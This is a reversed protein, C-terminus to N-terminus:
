AGDGTHWADDLEGPQPGLLPEGKRKIAEQKQRPRALLKNVATNVAAEHSWGARIRRGVTGLVFGRLEDWEAASRTEDSVTVHLTSRRNRAQETPTAWRCNGPEYGKENDEREISHDESPPEGMDALFASFDTWRECIDIGRGGYSAFSHDRENRCRTMMGVWTRYVKTGKMGHRQNAAISADRVLCGCSKSQGRTIQKGVVVKETGCECVCLWKGSGVFRIVHLRSFTQGTLDRFRHNTPLPIATENSQM